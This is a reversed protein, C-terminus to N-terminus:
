KKEFWIIDNELISNKNHLKNEQTVTIPITDVLDWGLARGTEAIFQGSKIIIEKGEEGGAKTTNDGIVFFLSGQSSIYQDLNIMTKTMDDYYRLLLAAKNQRRFGVENDNNLKFVETIIKKATPSVINDFDSSLIKDDLESREKKRIERAGTLDGEIQNRETSAMGLLLLISLRDTDIYPLATAYPPSTVVADISNKKLGANKYSSAVRCDGQFVTAKGFHTPSLSSRQAFQRLRLRQKELNKLFLQIVPADEIPPNRRRIRLDRPDQQSVDRVIGSLCIELFERVIPEPVDNILDLIGGLVILVPKPFWSNLEPLCDDSFVSLTKSDFVRSSVNDIFKGLLKDVLFADVELIGTKARAIKIALPNLDLGKANFGNLYGELVVTGSGSFPDLINAGSDLKALNFLSRALQPYFKGKYPHLGHTVYKPDKRASQKKFADGNELIAQWTSEKHYNKSVFGHTFTLRRLKDIEFPNVTIQTGEKTKRIKKDSLVAKIERIRIKDEYDWLKYPPNILTLKLDKSPKRLILLKEEKLRRASSIFSRKNDPLQRKTIGVLEFGVEIAMDCVLEATAFLEGKFIADGLVLVCYRGYRLGQYMRILCSKMEDLYQEIGTNDKQHRLHSGIEKKGLPRPDFGLWFLRFRHYLHYDTANPYPPSSVILDVSGDPVVTENRLDVTIFAGRRFKLLPSLRRLKGLVSKLERAYTKLVFGKEVDRPKSTYRTESDQFSSKIIIKSFASKAIVSTEPNSLLDIEWKLYSLERWVNNHFWKEQNPIEPSSNEIDISHRQFIDDFRDCELSLITIKEIFDNFFTENEKTLTITKAAGILSALPSIDSSVAQRGLLLSELATTGSGGFPDWVMEGKLSLLKILHFPIQPIFKAPYPHLNHSLYSTNVDTFAWDVANIRKFVDISEELERLDVIEGKTEGYTGEAIKTDVVDTIEENFWDVLSVGYESLESELTTRTDKTTEFVLRTTSM